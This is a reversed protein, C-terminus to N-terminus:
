EAVAEEGGDCLVMRVGRNPVLAYLGLEFRSYPLPVAFFLHGEGFQGAERVDILAIEGGDSLWGKLTPADITLTVAKRERESARMALLQVTQPERAASIGGCPALQVGQAM